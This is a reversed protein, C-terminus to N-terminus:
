LNKMIVTESDKVWEAEVDQASVASKSVVM